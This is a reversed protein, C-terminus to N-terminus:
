ALPLSEAFTFFLSLSCKSGALGCSGFRESMPIRGDHETGFLCLNLICCSVCYSDM